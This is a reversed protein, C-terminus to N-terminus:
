RGTGWRGRKPFRGGWSPAVSTSWVLWYTGKGGGAIHAGFKAGGPAREPSKAGPVIIKSFCIHSSKDKPSCCEWQVLPPSCATTPQMNRSPPGGRGHDHGTQQAMNEAKGHIRHVVGHGWRSWNMLTVGAMKLRASSHCLLPPHCESVWRMQWVGLLVRTSHLCLCLAATGEELPAAIWDSRLFYLMGIYMLQFLLLAVSLWPHLMFDMSAESFCTARLPAARNRPLCAHGVSAVGGHLVWPECSSQGAHHQQHSLWKAVQLEQSVSSFRFPRSSFVM